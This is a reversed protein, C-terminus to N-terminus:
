DGRRNGEVSGEGEALGKKQSRRALRTLYIRWLELQYRCAAPNVRNGNDLGTYICGGVCLGVLPCLFCHSKLVELREQIFKRSVAWLGPHYIDGALERLPLSAGPAYLCLQSARMTSINICIDMHPYGSLGPCNFLFAYEGRNVLDRANTLFLETVKFGERENLELFRGMLAAKAAAEEETINLLNPALRAMEFGYQAMGYVKEPDFGGVDGITGQFAILPRSLGSYRRFIEVGRMVDAFSGRGDKYRRTRDHVEGYGDISVSVHFGHAGLFVALEPDMVTMNTNIQFDFDLGEGGYRRVVDETLGRVLDAHLLIEGGTFTISIEKGGNEIVRRIYADLCDKIVQLREAPDADAADRGNRNYQNVCYPCGLNCADSAITIGKYARREAYFLAASREVQALAAEMMVEFERKSPDSEGRYIFRQAELRALLQDLDADAGYEPGGGGRIEELVRLVEGNLLSFCPYYRNWGVYLGPDVDQIYLHESLRFSM